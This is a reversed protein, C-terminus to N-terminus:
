WVRGPESAVGTAAPQSVVASSPRDENRLEVWVVTGHDSRHFGWEGGSLLVLRDLLMLGRGYDAVDEGLAGDDAEGLRCVCPPQSGHDTVSIRVLTETASLAVVVTDGDSARRGYTVANTVLESTVLEADGRCPHDSLHRVVFRRAWGVQDPQAPLTEAEALASSAITARDGNSPKM